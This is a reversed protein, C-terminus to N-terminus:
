DDSRRGMQYIEECRDQEYDALFRDRLNWGTSGDKYTYRTVDGNTTTSVVPNSDDEDHIDLRDREDLKSM